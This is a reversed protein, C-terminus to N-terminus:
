RSVGRGPKQRPATVRISSIVSSFHIEFLGSSALAGFPSRDARRGWDRSIQLQAGEAPNLTLIFRARAYPQCILNLPEGSATKARGRENALQRGIPSSSHIRNLLIIDRAFPDLTGADAV